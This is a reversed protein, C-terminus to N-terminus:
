RVVEKDDLMNEMKLDSWAVKWQVLRGVLLSGRPRVMQAVLKYVTPTDMTLVMAVALDVVM